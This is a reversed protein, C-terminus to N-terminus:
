QFKIISKGSKVAKFSDQFGEFLNNVISALFLILGDNVLYLDLRASDM